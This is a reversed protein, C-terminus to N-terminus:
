NTRSLFSSVFQLIWKVSKPWGAATYTMVTSLIKDEATERAIEEPKGDSAPRNIHADIDNEKALSVTDVCTSSNEQPSRSLADAVVLHKGPLFEAKPNFKMLRILLRQCRLRTDHLDKNNVLPVLPKHDTELKFSELGVLYREFKECAWVAGLCEKEIQAYGRETATLTRSCYAVPKQIGDHDQLLVGGLGYSSADTSVTTKRTLDFFALTPATSLEEKIKNLAQSQPEGWTWEKDKELLETVPRLIASMNPIFRRLFNMM